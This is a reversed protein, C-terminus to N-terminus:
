KPDLRFFQVPRYPKDTLDFYARANTTETFYCNYFNTGYHYYAFFTGDGVWADIRYHSDEWDVLNTSSKLGTSWFVYFIEGPKGWKDPYNYQDIETYGLTGLGPQNTNMDINRPVSTLASGSPGTRPNIIVYPPTNTPPPPPQDPQPIRQAMKVIQYIIYGVVAIAILAVLALPWLKPQPKPSDSNSQHETPPSVLNTIQNVSVTQHDAFQWDTARTLGPQLLYAVM